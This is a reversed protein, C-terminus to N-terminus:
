AENSLSRDTHKHWFGLVKSNRVCLEYMDFYDYESTKSVTSPHYMSGHISKMEVHEAIESYVGSTMCIPVILSKKLRM